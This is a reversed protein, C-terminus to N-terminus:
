RPKRIWSLRGGRATPPNHGTSRPAPRAVLSLMLAVIGALAADACILPTLVSGGGSLVFGSGVTGASRGAASLVIDASIISPLQRDSVIRGVGTTWWIEFGVLGASVIPAAIFLAIRGVAFGLVAVGGAGALAAYPGGPWDAIAGVVASGAAMSGMVAGFSFLAFYLGLWLADSHTGRFLLPLGVQTPGVLLVNALAGALIGLGIWRVNRVGLGAPSLLRAFSVALPPRRSLKDAAAASSSLVGGFSQGGLVLLSGAVGLCVAEVAFWWASGSAGVVVGSLAPGAIGAIQSSAFRHGMIRRLADDPTVAVLAATAVAQQATACLSGLGVMLLLLGYPESGRVMLIWLAGAVMAGTANAGMLVARRGVRGAAWSGAPASVGAAIAVVALLGGLADSGRYQKIAYVSVAVVVGSSGLTACSEAAIVRRPVSYRHSTRAGFLALIARHRHV